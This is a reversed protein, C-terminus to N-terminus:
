KKQREALSRRAETIWKVQNVLPKRVSIHELRFGTTM